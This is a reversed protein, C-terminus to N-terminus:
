NQLNELLMSVEEAVCQFVLKYQEENEVMKMRQDRMHELSGAINLEKVGLVNKKKAKILFLLFFLLCGKLIRNIVMDILCYTGTRGSGNTCHVLM